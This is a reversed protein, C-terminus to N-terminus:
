FANSPLDRESTDSTAATTLTPAAASGGAGLSFGQPLTFGRLCSFNLKGPALQFAVGSLAIGITPSPAAAASGTTGAGFGNFPASPPDDLDSLAAMRKTSRFFGQGSNLNAQIAAEKRIAEQNIGYGPPLLSLIIDIDNFYTALKDAPLRSLPDWPSLDATKEKATHLHRVLDVDKFREIFPNCLKKVRNSENGTIDIGSTASSTDARSTDASTDIDIDIDIHETYQLLNLIIKVVIFSNFHFLHPLQDLIGTDLVEAM